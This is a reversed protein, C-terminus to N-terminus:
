TRTRRNTLQGWYTEGWQTLIETEVEACSDEISTVVIDQAPM